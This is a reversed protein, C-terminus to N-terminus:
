ACKLLPLGLFAPLLYYYQSIVHKLECGRMEGLEEEGVEDVTTYMMLNGMTCGKLLYVPSFLDGGGGGGIL